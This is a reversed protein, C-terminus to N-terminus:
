KDSVSDYDLFCHILLCEIIIMLNGMHPVKFCLRVTSRATPQTGALCTKLEKTLGGAAEPVTQSVQVM